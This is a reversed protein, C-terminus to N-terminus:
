LLFPRPTVAVRLLVFELLIDGIVLKEVCHVVDVGWLLPCGVLEFIEILRERPLPFIFISNGAGIRPAAQFEHFRLQLIANLQQGSPRLRYIVRRQM